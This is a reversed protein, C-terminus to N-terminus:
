YDRSVEAVVSERGITSISALLSLWGTVRFEAETASYGRGDTIIEAYFRRGFNKGLAVGTGRGLAPDPGVIRLRDLGIATRLQNIPDVDAGGRLSALATGLQLADTASLETISGGFLLQALIEEEPLAPTSTFRIEPSQANGQVIATVDLGAGETEAAIDVRPDIPLNADFDIRGRTLEFRTGAFSYIGQVVRAQGGIRPDDTTGRVIIDARWESDLGLGDVNIRNNGRADILYRWPQRRTRPPAIDPPLNIERTPIRPLEAAATARGLQWSAREIEVRGAITGGLGNSVIRLPGTITADLGNANLLRANRAAVRIDITPGKTGLGQLDVIGSGSVTGDNATRGAFRTIRLRSGAFSGRARVNRIDTGSLASRLRLDDSKMSGRVRPNALTGTVNAAVAVPGTLDFAEIALLRWLASAPGGFRLQARLDGRQLRAAIPGSQALNGIRAQLRGRREGDESITARAELDDPTLQSILALDIPRSTLVLGSRALNEVMLTASGSPVGGQVADYAIKGSVTGGLGFDAVALDILSLPMDDLALDIATRRGGLEGAILAAGNGYTLLTQALRWGGDDQATFVARRPMAIRAGGFEGRTALAIRGPEIAANAQLNFRSGRRGALSATITGRGNEVAGAAALRGVFVGGASVGQATVSGELTSIGSKLFGRGDIDASAIAIPSAGGFRADRATADIAFGQGGDRAELAIRGDLGGGALNLNGNAGGAALTIDGRVATEWVNLRDIAIRTPGGAPAFLSLSGDFPGLTSEGSTEIAFRDGDPRIAVRVDRLGATPLPDAFVLEATPGSDDLSGEVTFDGYERHVGRGALTTTNRVIRGDLVATLERAVVNVNRLDLPSGAGISLVGSTRIEPGALNALTRNAVSALRADFSTKLAWIGGRRTEFDIRGDGNLLGFNPVALRQVDVPGTLRYRAAALDGRLDLDAQIDPFDIRLSDSVVRTGALRLTGDLTGIRLKRDVFAANRVIGTTDVAGIRASLPITWVAGDYTAVGSQDINALVVDAADLRDATLRHDIALDDFAGEARGSLTAGTMRIDRGFLQPDRLEAQFDFDRIANEALDIAGAGKVQLGRGRLAIGGNWQRDAFRGVAGMAVRRGAARAGLGTLLDQPAVQGKIRYLGDTQVIDLAALRDGARDVILDGAWKAYNGRGDIKAVYSEEVGLLKALVGGAQAAYDLEVDFRDADPRADLLLALRDRAGLDGTAKVFARGGRIDINAAFGIMPSADGVIGPALVLEKIRLDGIRIDFSPLIPADPDGPLLEPLRSLRGRRAVLSEIDLGSSFWAFPNWDVAVEELRLFEGKPDRLVLDSLIAKNYISGEIAGISIRLGSAPEASEIRDAIWRKGPPTDLGAILATLLLVAAVVFGLAWKVVRLATRRRSSATPEEINEPAIADM